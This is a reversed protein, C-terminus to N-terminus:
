GSDKTKPNKEILNPKFDRLCSPKTPNPINKKKINKKNV